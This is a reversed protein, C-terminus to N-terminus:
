ESTLFGQPIEDAIFVDAWVPLPEDWDVVLRFQIGTGGLERRGEFPSINEVWMRASGLFRDPSASSDANNGESVAVFVTEQGSLNMHVTCDVIGSHRGVFWRFVTAM